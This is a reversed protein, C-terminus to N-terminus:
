RGAFFPNYRRELGVTTLPGHGPCLITDEPLSLIQNRIARKAAQFQETPVGGMSGAFLADGVVAYRQALGEVVYTMGGASHGPTSRATISLRGARSTSGPAMATTRPDLIREESAVFIPARSVERLRRLEAVHDPHTHTLFITDIKVDKAKAVRLIGSCNTGTDFVVAARASVDWFLYANVFMDGGFLSSFAAFGEEPAVINPEFTGAALAVLAAADLELARALRELMAYDAPPKRLRDLAERSIGAKLALTDDDLGLGRQAKGLVDSYSDELAIM